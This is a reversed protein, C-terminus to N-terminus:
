SNRGNRIFVFNMGLVAGALPLLIPMVVKSIYQPIYSDAATVIIIYLLLFLVMGTFSLAVSKGYDKIRKMTRYHFYGAINIGVLMCVFIATFTLLISDFLNTTDYESYLLAGALGFLLGAIIELVIFLFQRFRYEFM